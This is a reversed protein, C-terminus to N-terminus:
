AAAPEIPELSVIHRLAITRFDRMKRSRENTRDYPELVYFTTGTVYTL